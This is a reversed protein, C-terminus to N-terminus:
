LHLRSPGHLVQHGERTAPDDIHAHRERLQAPSPDRPRHSESPRQARRRRQGADLLFARRGAGPAGAPGADGKDGKPGAPGPDGQQGKQNWTIALEGRSCATGPEVVRLGGSRQLYCGSITGDARILSRVTDAAWATGGAVAIVVITALATTRKSM